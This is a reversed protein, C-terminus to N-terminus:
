VLGIETIKLLLNRSTKLEVMKRINPHAFKQGVEYETIVQEIFRDDKETERKVHKHAYLQKTKSDSVAYIFSRAGEGIRDIVEFDFIKKPLPESNRRHTM